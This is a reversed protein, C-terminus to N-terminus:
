RYLAIYYYTYYLGGSYLSTDTYLASGQVTNMADHKKTEPKRYIREVKEKQIPEM